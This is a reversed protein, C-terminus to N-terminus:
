PMATLCPQFATGNMYLYEQEQVKRGYPVRVKAWKRTRTNYTFMRHM